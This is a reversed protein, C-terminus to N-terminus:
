SLIHNPFHRRDLKPGSSRKLNNLLCIPPEFSAFNM